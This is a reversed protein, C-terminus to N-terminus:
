LGNHPAGSHPVASSVFPARLGHCWPLSPQRSWRSGPTQESPATAELAQSGTNEPGLELPSMLAPGGQDHRGPGLEVAPDGTCICPLASHVTGALGM